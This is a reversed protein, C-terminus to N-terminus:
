KTAWHLGLDRLNWQDLDVAAIQIADNLGAASLSARRVISQIAETSPKPSFTQAMAYRGDAEMVLTGADEEVVMIANALPKHRRLVGIACAWLPRMSSVKLKATTAAARVDQLLLQPAAIALSTATVPLAELLVNLEGSLGTMSRAQTAALATAEELSKLGAVPQMLFPRAISSSLMVDVGQNWWWGNSQRVAAFCKDLVMRDLKEFRFPKSEQGDRVVAFTDGIYIAAAM